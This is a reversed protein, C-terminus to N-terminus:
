EKSANLKSSNHKEGEIGKNLGIDFAHQVNELNTCWELNSVKNNTKNGDKHNVIDKKEPNPIFCEAVL